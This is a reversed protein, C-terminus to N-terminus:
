ERIEPEQPQEAHVPLEIFFAAGKGPESEAWIRGGHETIIGHCISLGLGTSQGLERTTFFPSFLQRMVEREIGPGDDTFSARVCDGGKETTITLIGKKHAKLMFLEANVILNFFVQQLQSSNGKIKPLDPSFRTVVKINIINQEYSRLEIVKQIDDNINLPLKEQPQRRAFTMLNKVVRAIRQADEHISMLDQKIDDPLDRELLLGSFGIISTLPNNIEHALGGTLEGISALRDQMMLQEIMKKRETIDRVVGVIEVPAGKDDYILGAHIEVPLVHGDKHVAELQLTRFPQGREIDKVLEFHQKEYSELTLVDKPHMTLAEKDTYGFLREVSPSVYTYREERLNLKYIVDATYESVLRFHEQAQKRETIEATLISSQQWLEATTKELRKKMEGQKGVLWSFLVGFAIAALDIWAGPARFEILHPSLILLGLGLCVILGSKVDWRWAAIGASFIVATRYVASASLFPWSEQLQIQALSFLQPAYAFVGALVGMGAIYWFYRNKLLKALKGM